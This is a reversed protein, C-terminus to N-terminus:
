PGIGFRGPLSDSLVKSGCDPHGWGSESVTHGTLPDATTDIIMNDDGSPSVGTPVHDLGLADRTRWAVIHDTCSFDVSM